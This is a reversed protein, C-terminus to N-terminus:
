VNRKLQRASHQSYMCFTPFLVGHQTVLNKFETDREEMRQNAKSYYAKIEAIAELGNLYPMDYDLVLIQVLENNCDSEEANRICANVAQRGDGVFKCYDILGLNSFILKLAELNYYMDDACIIKLKKSKVMTGFCLPKKLITQM